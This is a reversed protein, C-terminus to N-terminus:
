KQTRDVWLIAKQLESPTKAERYLVWRL